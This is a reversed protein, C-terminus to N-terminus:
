NEKPFTGERMMKVWRGVSAPPIYLGSLASLKVAIERITHGEQSLLFAYDAWKDRIPMRRRSNKKSMKIGRRVQHSRIEGNTHLPSDLTYLKCGGYIAKLNLLQEKTPIVGQNMKSYADPRVYRSTDCMVVATAGVLKALEANERHWELDHGPGIHCVGPVPIDGVKKVIERLEQMQQELHAKQKRESVRSSVLIVRKGCKEDYRYEEFTNEIAELQASTEKAQQISRAIKERRKIAKWHM